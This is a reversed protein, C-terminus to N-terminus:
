KGKVGKFFCDQGGREVRCDGDNVCSECTELIETRIVEAVGKLDEAIRLLESRLMKFGNKYTNIINDLNQEITM